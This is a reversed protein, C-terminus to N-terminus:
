KESSVSHLASIFRAALEDVSDMSARYVQKTDALTITEVEWTQTATKINHDRVLMVPQYLGITTAVAFTTRSPFRGGGSHVSTLRLAVFESASRDVNVGADRLKSELRSQLAGMTVGQDELEAAVPDIVVNVATIGRMTARDLKADGAGGLSLVLAVGLVLGKGYM